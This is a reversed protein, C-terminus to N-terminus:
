AKLDEFLNSSKTVETIVLQSPDYDITMGITNDSHQLALNVVEFADDLKQKALSLAETRNDAIVSGCDFSSWIGITGDLKWNYNM